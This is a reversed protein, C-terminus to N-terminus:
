LMDELEHVVKLNDVVPHACSTLLKNFFAQLGIDALRSNHIFNYVTKEHVSEYLVKM